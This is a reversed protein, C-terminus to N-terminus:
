TPQKRQWQPWEEVPDFGVSRYLRLANENEGEVSLEITDIGISRLREIGWLLLFRGLGGGRWDRRVGVLRVSGVPPDVGRDVGTTCFGIMGAPTSRLIAIAAPDFDPKGHIHEIQELTVRVPTPHDAFTENILDIYPLVDDPSYGTLVIGAPLAPLPESQNPDLRLRWFSHDYHFDLAQLFAIAGASGHPPFLILPGDPTSELAAESAEVLARGVGQRRAEPHVVVLHYDSCILGVPASDLEAVLFNRAIPFAEILGEFDSFTNGAQEGAALSNRLLAALPETDTPQFTRITPSSPGPV